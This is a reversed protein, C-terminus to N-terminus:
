ATFGRKYTAPKGDLTTYGDGLIIDYDYDRYIDYVNIL